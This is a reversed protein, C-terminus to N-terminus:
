VLCFFCLVGMNVLGTARRCNYTLSSPSPMERPTWLQRRLLFIQCIRLEAEAFSLVFSAILMVPLCVLPLGLHYRDATSQPWAEAEEDSELYHWTQRGREDLLRWRRYDTKKPIPAKGNGPAQAKGKM